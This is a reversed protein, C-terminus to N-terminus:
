AHDGGPSVLPAPAVRLTHTVHAPKLDTILADLRAQEDTSLPGGALTVTVSGARRVGLATNIGLAADQGIRLGDFNEVILARGGSAAEVGARLARRTGKSRSVEAAQAIQQRLTREDTEPSVTLGVWRALWPLFRMPTMRPDLFLDTTDVLHEMPDLISQFILLFRALFQDEDYDQYVAPLYGLLRSRGAAGGPPLLRVRGPLTAVVTETPGAIQVLFGYDGPPAARDAYPPHLVLLAEVSEGPQLTVRAPACTYWDEPLGLVRLFHEGAAQEAAIGEPSVMVTIEVVSGAEVPFAPPQGDTTLTLVRPDGALRQLDAAPRRMLTM